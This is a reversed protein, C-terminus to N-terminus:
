AAAAGRADRGHTEAAVGGNLHRNEPRIEADLDFSEGGGASGNGSALGQTRRARRYRRRRASAAVRRPVLVEAQRDQCHQAALYKFTTSRILCKASFSSLVSILQSCYDREDQKHTTCANQQFEEGVCHQAELHM